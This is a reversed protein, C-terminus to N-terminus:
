ATRRIVLSPELLVHDPKDPSDDELLRTLVGVCRAAADSLPQSLSTLGIAAAVPTDDFGIVPVPGAQLAGLAVSDSVCVLATAGAAILERAAAEGEAASGDTRRELAGTDDLARAWGSRRDDGVGSGEPWGIFGIRRHGAGLLHRTAAATGAAGDVDVWPHAGGEPMGWPRGFTVFALEREALWSTRVDGYHTGTLVFADPEYAGLLDDFTAIESRDDDATYLIVRYGAKAASDTLGHLFRDFVNMGDQTQEIRVALLRSRGTRMRRAAQNVRYGLEEVAQRVRERTEERVLDPSNLVNSVTQRSVSARRAVDAITVKEPM